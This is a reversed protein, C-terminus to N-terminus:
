AITECNFEFAVLNVKCRGQNWSKAVELSLSLDFSNCAEIFDKLGGDCLIEWMREDKRVIFTNLPKTKVLEEKNEINRAVM